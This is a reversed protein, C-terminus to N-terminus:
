LCKKFDSVINGVGVVNLENLYMMYPMGIDNGIKEEYDRNDSFVIQRANTLFKDRTPLYLTDINALDTKLQDNLFRLHNCIGQLAKRVTQLENVHLINDRVDIYLHALVKVFNCINERTNMGLLEFLKFYAGYQEPVEMLYPRIEEVQLSKVVRDCTVFLKSKPIFIIPKQLLSRKLNESNSDKYKLLWAYLQILVEEIWIVHKDQISNQNALLKLSDCVNQTHQIVNDLSPEKHVQLQQLKKNQIKTSKSYLSQLNAFYPLISCTTWCIDSYEEFVSNKFCILTAEEKEVQYRNLVYEILRASKNRVEDTVQIRGLHEVIRAFELILKKTIENQIGATELLYKWYRDDFPKGPFDDESCMLQMLDNFPNKFHSAKFLVNQNDNVIIYNLILRNSPAVSIDLCPLHLSELAKRLDGSYSEIDLVYMSKDIPTLIPKYNDFKENLPEEICPMLCWPLIPRLLTLVTDSTIVATNQKSNNM